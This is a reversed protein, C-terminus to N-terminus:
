RCTRSRSKDRDERVVVRRQGGHRPHQGRAREHCCQGREEPEGDRAPHASGHAVEHDREVPRPGPAHAVRQRTRQAIRSQLERQPQRLLAGPDVVGPLLDHKRAARVPGHREDAVVERGDDVVGDQELWGSSSSATPVAARTASSFSRRWASSRECSPSSRSDRARCRRAGAVLLPAPQLAVEVVARLLPEDPDPHRQLQELRARRPLRRRRGGQEVLRSSSTCPASSSSRSSARPM